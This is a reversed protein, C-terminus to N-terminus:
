KIIILKKNKLRYYDFLCIFYVMFLTVVQLGATDAYRYLSMGGQLSVCVTFYILLLQHFCITRNKVRTARCVIYNFVVFMFFAIIPGFDLTFDGVFTYFIDDDM